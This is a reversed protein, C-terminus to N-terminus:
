GPLYFLPQVKQLDLVASLVAVRKGATRMVNTAGIKGSGWERIDIGAIAQSSDFRISYFRIYLGIFM